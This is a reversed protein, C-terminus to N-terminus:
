GRQSIIDKARCWQKFATLNAGKPNANNFASRQILQFRNDKHKLVEICLEYQNNKTAYVITCKKDVAKDRYLHGVCINMKSGIEVLRNTNEPLCFKYDGTEWELTKEEESYSIEKNEFHEEPEPHADHYLRMLLDHNYETFGERGVKIAIDEPLLNETYLRHLYDLADPTRYVSTDCLLPKILRVVIKEDYLLVLFRIDYSLANRNITRLWVNVNEDCCYYQEFIVDNFIYTSFFFESDTEMLKEICDEDHIGAYWIGLYQAFKRHGQLFIKNLKSSYTLGFLEIFKKVCDPSHKLDDAMDDTLIKSFENIEPSFPYNAFNVLRDFNTQGYALDPVFGCEEKMQRNMVDQIQQYEEDTIRFWENGKESLIKTQRNKVNLILYRNQPIIEGDGCDFSYYSNKIEIDGNRKYSITNSSSSQIVAELNEMIRSSEEGDTFGAYERICDLPVIRKGGNRFFVTAATITYGNNKTPAYNCAYVTAPEFIDSQNYVGLFTFLVVTSIKTVVGEFEKYKLEFKRTYVFSSKKDSARGVYDDRKGDQIFYWNNDEENHSLYYNGSCPTLYKTCHVPKLLISKEEPTLAM